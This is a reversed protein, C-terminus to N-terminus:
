TGRIFVKYNRCRCNTPSYDDQNSTMTLILSTDQIRTFRRLGYQFLEKSFKERMKDKVNSGLGCSLACAFEAKCSVGMLHSLSNM